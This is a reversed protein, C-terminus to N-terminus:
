VLVIELILFHELLVILVINLGKPVMILEKLVLNVIHNVEKPILELLAVHVNPQELLHILELQAILVDILEKV